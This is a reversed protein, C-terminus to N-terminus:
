CILVTEILDHALVMNAYLRPVLFHFRAFDWISCTKCCILVTGVLDLAVTHNVYSSVRSNEM